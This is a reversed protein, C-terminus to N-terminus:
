HFPKSDFNFVAGAISILLAYIGTLLIASFGYKIGNYYHFYIPIEGGGKKKREKAVAYVINGGGWGLGVANNKLPIWYQWTPTGSQAVSIVYGFMYFVLMYKWRELFVLLMKEIIFM